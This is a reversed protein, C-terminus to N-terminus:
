LYDCRKILFKKIWYSVYGFSSSFINWLDRILGRIEEEDNVFTTSLVRKISKWIFEILNLDPLYTPLYVIYIGLENAKNRVLTSKYSSFKNSILIIVKYEKNAPKICEFFQAFSGAKSNEIFRQQSDGKIVYFGITNTAFKTTNKISRVNDFSWVRVTNPANQPRSEDLFGIAILYTM